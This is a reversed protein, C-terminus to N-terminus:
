INLVQFFHAYLNIKVPYTKERSHTKHKQLCKHKFETDLWIRCSGKDYFKVIHMISFCKWQVNIIFVFLSFINEQCATWFHVNPFQESYKNIYWCKEFRYGCYGDILPQFPILQLTCMNITCRICSRECWHHLQTLIKSIIM